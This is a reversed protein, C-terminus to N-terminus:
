PRQTLCRPVRHWDWQRRVESQLGHVSAQLQLHTETCTGATTEVVRHPVPCFLKAKFATGFIQRGVRRGLQSSKRESRSAPIIRSVKSFAPLKDSSISRFTFMNAYEDNTLSYFFLIFYLLLSTSLASINKILTDPNFQLKFVAKCYCVELIFILKRLLRLFLTFLEPMLNLHM